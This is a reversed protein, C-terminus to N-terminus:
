PASISPDPRILPLQTQNLPGEYTRAIREIGEKKMKHVSLCM